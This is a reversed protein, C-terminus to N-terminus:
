MALGQPRNTVVQTISPTKLSVARIKQSVADRTDELTAALISRPLREALPQVLWRFLVPISRSMGAMEMEVYVGDDRQELRTWVSDAMIILLPNEYALWPLVCRWKLLM